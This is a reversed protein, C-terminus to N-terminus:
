EMGWARRAAKTMQVIDPRSWHADQRAAYELNRPEGNFRADCGDNSGILHLAATRLADHGEREAWAVLGCV